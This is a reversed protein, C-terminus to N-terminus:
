AETEHPYDRHDLLIEIDLGMADNRVFVSDEEYEGFTELSGLGVVEDVNEVPNDQEDTLVKNAYYTYSVIDYGAEDFEEPPIVYPVSEDNIDMSMQEGEKNDETSYGENSVLNVYEIAENVGDVVSKTLDEVVGEESPELSYRKSYAEKVSEIEEQTIREYKTKVVKLTIVSGIAAGAMFIFLSNLKSM